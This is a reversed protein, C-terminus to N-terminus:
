SRLYHLLECLIELSAAYNEDDVFDIYGDPMLMTEVDRMGLKRGYKDVMRRSMISEALLSWDGSLGEPPWTFSKEPAVPLKLTTQEEQGSKSKERSLQSLLAKNPDKLPIECPVRLLPVITTGIHKAIGLELKVWDSKVTNPTLVIVMIDSRFIGWGLNQHLEALNNELRLKKLYDPMDAIDLWVYLGRSRCDKVLKHVFESDKHSHSIFAVPKPGDPTEFFPSTSFVFTSM